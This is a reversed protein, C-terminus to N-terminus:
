GENLGVGVPLKAVIGMGLEWESQQGKMSTKYSIKGMLSLKEKIDVFNVVKDAKKMSKRGQCGIIQNKM